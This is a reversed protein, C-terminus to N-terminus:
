DSSASSTTTTKEKGYIDDDGPMGFKSGDMVEMTGLLGGWQPQGTARRLIKGNKKLILTIGKDLVDFGQGVATNVEPEMVDAWAAPGRPFAVVSEAKSVDFNRDRGEIGETSMWCAATDGVKTAEKDAKELLVPVLIVDSAAMAAPYINPDDMQDSNLSRCLDAIYKRGGAAIMVRSNRRYDSLTGLEKNEQREVVLKALAGGQKIRALNTEGAQWDRYTLGGCVILAIVNIAVSQLAEEMPPADAYGASAKAVTLFSFYLAVFASGTSSGFFFLRFTRFPSEVEERLRQKATYGGFTKELEDKGAMRLGTRQIHSSVSPREPTRFRFQHHDHHFTAASSSPTFAQTCQIVLLGLALLVIPPATFIKM